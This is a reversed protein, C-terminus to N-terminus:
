QAEDTKFEVTKHNHLPSIGSSQWQWTCNVDSTRCKNRFKMDTEKVEMQAKSM